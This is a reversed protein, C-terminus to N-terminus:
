SLSMELVKASYLLTKVSHWDYFFRWLEHHFPQPPKKILQRSGHLLLSRWNSCPIADATAIDCPM